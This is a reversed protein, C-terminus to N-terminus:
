FQNKWSLGKIWFKLFALNELFVFELDPNEGFGNPWTM